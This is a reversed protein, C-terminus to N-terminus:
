GGLVGLNMTLGVQVFPSAAEQSWGAAADALLIHTLKLRLGADFIWHSFGGNILTAAEGFGSLSGSLPGGLAASLPVGALGIADGGRGELALGVNVSVDLKDMHGTALALIRGDWRDGEYAPLSTAGLVAFGMDRERAVKIKGELHMDPDGGDIGAMDLYFRPEFADGIAYKLRTPATYGEMWRAGTEMELTGASILDGSATVVPRDPVPLAAHSPISLLLASLVLWM